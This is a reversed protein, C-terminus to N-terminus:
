RGLASKRATPKAADPDALAVIPSGPGLLHTQGAVEDLSIPRMRAALPTQGAFLAGSSKM